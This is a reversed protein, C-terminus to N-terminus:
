FLDLKTPKRTCQVNILPIRSNKILLAEYYKHENKTSFSKKTDVEDINLPATRKNCILNHDKIGSERCRQRHEALRTRLHRKTESYYQSDCGHCKFHYM